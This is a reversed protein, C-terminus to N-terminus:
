RNKEKPRLENVNSAFEMFFKNISNFDKFSTEYFMLKYKDTLAEISSSNVEKNLDSKNGVLAPIMKEGGNKKCDKIWHEINNFSNQNNM